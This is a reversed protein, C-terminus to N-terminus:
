LFSTGSFSSVREKVIQKLAYEVHSGEKACSKVSAFQGEGVMEGM